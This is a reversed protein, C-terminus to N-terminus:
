GADRRASPAARVQRGTVHETGYWRRGHGVSSSHGVMSGHGGGDGPPEHDLAVEQGRRTRQRGLRGADQPDHIAEPGELEIRELDGPAVVVQQQQRPDGAIAPGPGVGVQVLRALQVLGVVLAEREDRRCLQGPVPDGPVDIADLVVTAREVLVGRQDLLQQVPDSSVPRQGRGVDFRARGDVPVPARRVGNARHELREGLGPDQPQGSAVAVPADVVQDLPQERGVQQGLAARLVLLTAVLQQGAEPRM